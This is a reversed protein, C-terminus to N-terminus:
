EVKVSIRNIEQYQANVLILEVRDGLKIQARSILDGFIFKGPLGVVEQAQVKIEGNVSLRVKFGLSGYTGSLTNDGIKYPKDVTLQNLGSVDKVDVTIRNLERYTADVAVIEVTDKNSQILKDVNYFTFTDKGVSTIFQAKAQGNIFLRVRAIDKGYKGTLISEGAHYEDHSLNINFDSLKVSVRNIENYQRDVAVVELKQASSTVFKDVNNIIYTGAQKDMIAQTVAVGDVFLRVRSVNAEFTGTITKANLIYDNVTLGNLVSGSIPVDIRALERYQADVAVVEVKDEINLVLANTNNFTYKNTTTNTTVQAKAVGNVVLRIKSVAPAHTGELKSDNFKYTGVTLLEVEKGTVKVNIRKLEKYASNVGVIEVKDTPNLIFKDANNITYKGDKTTVAQTRVTGNVFLRIKSIATGFTGTIVKGGVVYDTATLVDSPVEPKAPKVEIETAISKNGSADTAIVKIIVGAKQAPISINFSGSQTAKTDGIKTTGTYATVTSSAEAKGTISTDQALVENVEPADPATTDKVSLVLDKSTSGDFTQTITVTYNSKLQDVFVRFEGTSSIIGQYEKVIVDANKVVIKFDANPIGKGKIMTTKDTLEDVQPQALEGKGVTVVTALGELGSPKVQVVTVKSGVKQVPIDISFKGDEGTPGKLITGDELVVKIANPSTATGTVKTSDTTIEDVIPAEAQDADKVYVRTVPSLKGNTSTYAEITDGYSPKTIAVKYKGDRDTVGDYLRESLDAKIVKVRITVSLDAEGTVVTSNTTVEDITPAFLEGQRVVVEVVPSVNGAIDMNSVAVVEGAIQRPLQLTFNGVSDTKTSLVKGNELKAFITTYPEGTGTVINKDSFIHNVKPALPATRDINTLSVDTINVRVNNAGVWSMYSIYAGLSIEIEGTEKAKYHIVKQQTHESVEESIFEDSAPGIKYLISSKTAGNIGQGSFKLEYEEGKVVHMKKTVWAKGGDSASWFMIGNDIPSATFEASVATGMVIFSNNTKAMPGVAETVGGKERYMEWGEFGIETTTGFPPNILEGDEPQDIKPEESVKSTVKEAAKVSLVPSIGAVLTTAM